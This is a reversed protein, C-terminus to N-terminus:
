KETIPLGLMSYLRRVSIKGDINLKGEDIANQRVAKYLEEAKRDGIRFLFKIDTKTIFEKAIIAEKSYAQM